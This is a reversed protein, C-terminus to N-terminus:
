NYKKAVKLVHYSATIYENNDKKDEELKKMAVHHDHEKADV